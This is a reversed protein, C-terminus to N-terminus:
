LDVVWNDPDEPSNIAPDLDHLDYGSIIAELIQDRAEQLHAALPFPLHEDALRTAIAQEVAGQAPDDLCGGRFAKIGIVDAYIPTRRGEADAVGAETVTLYFAEGHREVRLMVAEPEAPVFTGSVLGYTICSDPNVGAGPDGLPGGGSGRPPDRTSM